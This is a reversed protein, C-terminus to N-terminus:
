PHQIELGVEAIIPLMIIASVTSSIFNALVGSMTNFTLAVVWFHQGKLMGVLGKAIVSLLGSSKVANGLALGGGMLILVSWPTSNFEAPTLLGPGYLALVPVLAIIGMNGLLPELTEFSCWMVVTMVVVAVVYWERLGMGTDEKQMDPPVVRVTGGPSVMKSLDGSSGNKLMVVQIGSPLGTRFFLRLFAWCIGTADLNAHELVTGGPSVM